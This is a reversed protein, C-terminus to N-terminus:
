APKRNKRCDQCLSYGRKKKDDFGVWATRLSISKGCYECETTRDQNVDSTEARKGAGEQTPDQADSKHPSPNQPTELKPSPTQNPAPASFDSNNSLYSIPTRYLRFFDSPSLVAFLGVREVYRFGPLKKADAYPLSIDEYQIERGGPTRVFVKTQLGCSDLIEGNTRIQSLKQRDDDKPKAGSEVLLSTLLRDADYKETEASGPQRLEAKQTKEKARAAACDRRLNELTREAGTSKRVRRVRRTSDRLWAPLEVQHKKDKHLYGTKRAYGCFNKKHHESKFYTEYVVEGMNWCTELLDHGIQSSLGSASMLVFIHWHPFGTEHWETFSVYDIIRIGLGLHKLKRNIRKILDSVSREAELLGAMPSDYQKPDVTVILQRVQDYPWSALLALAEIFDRTGPGCTKCWVHGCRCKRLIVDLPNQAPTNGSQPTTIVNTSSFPAM